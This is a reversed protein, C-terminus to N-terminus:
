PMLTPFIIATYYVDQALYGSTKKKKKKICKILKM